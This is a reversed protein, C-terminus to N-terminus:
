ATKRRDPQPASQGEAAVASGDTPASERGRVGTGTGDQNTQWQEMVARVVDHLSDNPTFVVCVCRRQDQLERDTYFSDPVTLAADAERRVGEEIMSACRAPRALILM